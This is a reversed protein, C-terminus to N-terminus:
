KMGEELWPRIRRIDGVLFAAEGSVWVEKDVPSSFEAATTYKFRNQEPDLAKKLWDYMSTVDRDDLIFGLGRSTSETHNGDHYTYKMQDRTYSQLLEKLKTWDQAADHIWPVVEDLMQNVFHINVFTERFGFDHNFSDWFDDAPCIGIRARDMPIVTHTVGYDTSYLSDTTCIFSQNRPPYDHWENSVFLNIYNRTNAAKRVFNSSNGIGDVSPKFGRYIPAAKGELLNKCYEPANKKIWELLEEKSAPNVWSTREENLYDKFRM